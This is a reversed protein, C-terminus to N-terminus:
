KVSADSMGLTPNTFHVSVDDSVALEALWYVLFAQGVLRFRFWACDSEETMGYNRANVTMNQSISITLM